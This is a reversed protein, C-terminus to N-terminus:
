GLCGIMSGVQFWGLGSAHGRWLDDTLVTQTDRPLGGQGQRGRGGGLGGAHGPGPVGGGPPGRRHLALIEVLLVPQVGGGVVAGEPAAQLPVRGIRGRAAPLIQAPIPRRQHPHAAVPALLRHAM